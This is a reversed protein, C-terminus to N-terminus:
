PRVKWRGLHTSYWTEGLCHAIIVREFQSGAVHAGLKALPQAKSATRNWVTVQSEPMIFAKALASGMNGLGIVSIRRPEENAPEEM